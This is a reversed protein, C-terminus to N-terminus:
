GGLRTVNIHGDFTHTGFSFRLRTIARSTNEAAGGRLHMARRPNIVDSPTAGQHGTYTRQRGTITQLVGRACFDCPPTSFNTDAVVIGLGNADDRGQGSINAFAADQGWFAWTNEYWDTFYGNSDGLHVTYLQYGAGSARGAIDIAYGGDADGDLQEVDYVSVGRLRGSRITPDRYTQGSFRQHLIELEREVDALDRIVPRHEAM